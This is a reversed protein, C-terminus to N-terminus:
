NIIAWVFSIVIKKSLHKWFSSPPLIPNLIRPSCPLTAQQWQNLCQPFANKQAYIKHQCPFSVDKGKLRALHHNLGHVIFNWLRPDLGLKCVEQDQLNLALEETEKLSLRRMPSNNIIVAENTLWSSEAYVGIFSLLCTLTSLAMLITQLKYWRRLATRLSERSRIFCVKMVSKMVSRSLLM